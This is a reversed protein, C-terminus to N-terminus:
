FRFAAVDKGGNAKIAQELQRKWTKTGPIPGPKSRPRRISGGGLREGVTRFRGAGVREVRGSLSLQSVKPRSIVTRPASDAFGSRKGAAENFGRKAATAKGLANTRAQQARIAQARTRYVTRGGKGGKAGAKQALAGPKLGQPKRITGSPRAAKAQKPAAPKPKSKGYFAMARQATMTSRLAKQYSRMDRTLRNLERKPIPTGAARAAAYRMNAVVPSDQTSLVAQRIREGRGEIAKARAKARSLKGESVPRMPAQPGGQRAKQDAIRAKARRLRSGSNEQGAWPPNEGSKNRREVRKSASNALRAMAADSARITGASSQRRKMRDLVAGRQNGAATRLRGGRATVGNKGVGTIRGSNDRTIRNTGRQARRAAPKTKATTTGTTAFRGRNDRAYTRRGRSSGAM